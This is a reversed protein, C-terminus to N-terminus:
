YAPADSAPFSEESAEDVIEDMRRKRTAKALDPLPQPTPDIVDPDPEEPEKIPPPESGSEQPDPDPPPLKPDPAEAM